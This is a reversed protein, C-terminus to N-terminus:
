LCWDVPVAPQVTMIFVAPSIPLVMVDTVDTASSYRVRKRWEKPIGTPLRVVAKLADYWQQFGNKGLSPEITFKLRTDVGPDRQASDTEAM